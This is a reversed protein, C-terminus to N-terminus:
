ETDYKRKEEMDLRLKDM